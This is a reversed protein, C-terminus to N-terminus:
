NELFNIVFISKLFFYLNLFFPCCPVGLEELVHLLCKFHLLFVLLFVFRLESFLQDLTAQKSSFGLHFCDHAAQFRWVVPIRTLKM